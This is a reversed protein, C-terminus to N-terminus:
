LLATKQKADTPLAKLLHLVCPLVIDYFSSTVPRQCPTITTIAYPPM